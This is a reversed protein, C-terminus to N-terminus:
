SYIASAVGLVIAGLRSMEWVTLNMMMSMEVSAAESDGGCDIPIRGIRFAIM